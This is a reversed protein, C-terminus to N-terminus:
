EPVEEDTTDGYSCGDDQYGGLCTAGAAHTIEQVPIREALPVAYEFQSKEANM